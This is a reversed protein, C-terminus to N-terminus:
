RTLGRYTSPRTSRDQLKRMGLLTVVEDTARQRWLERAELTFELGERLYLEMTRGILQDLLGHWPMMTTSAATLNGCRPATMYYLGDIYIGATPKCDFRIYQQGSSGSVLKYRSPNGVRTTLTPVAGLQNDHTLPTGHTFNTTATLPSRPRVQNIEFAQFDAPLLFDQSVGDGLVSAVNTAIPSGLRMLLGNIEEVARNYVVRMLEPRYANGAQDRLLTRLEEFFTAITRLSASGPAPNGAITGTSLLAAIQNALAALEASTALGATSGGGGGGSNIAAGLSDTAPSTNDVDRVAAAVAALNGGAAATDLLLDLRGGDAWDDVLTGVDPRGTVIAGADCPRLQGNALINWCEDWNPLAPVETVFDHSQGDFNSTYTITLTGAATIYGAEIKLIANIGGGPSAAAWGGATLEGFLYNEGGLEEQRGIQIYGNDPDLTGTFAVATVEAWDKVGIYIGFFSERMQGPLSATSAAIAGPTGEQALVGAATAFTAADGGHAWNGLTAGGKTVTQGTGLNTLEVNGSIHVEGGTNTADLTLACDGDIYLVNGAQMGAISLAGSAKSLVASQGAGTFVIKAATVGTCDHFRYPVSDQSMTVTNMLHCRVFDAEGITMADLHSDVIIAEGTACTGIGSLGEVGEFYSKSVNQGGLALTFSRGSLVAGVLAAGLTVTTGPVVVFRNIGTAAALTVADAWPCPNDATGNVYPVTGSTGTAKVWISGSAYGVLSGSQQAQVYAQDLVLTGADAENFGFRIYVKGADAGSTGTHAALLTIDYLTETTGSITARVDWNTTSFNYASVTVADGVAAMSARLVVKSAARAVGCSFGYVWDIVDGVSALQHTTGDDALTNAFTGTQTGVASVSKIPTSANDSDVAYNLAAGTGSGIGSIQAALSDLTATSQSGAVHTVDVEPVGNVSPTAVATGLWKTVDAKTARNEISFMALVTGVVSTGNVTGTTIVVSYDAGAAYFADAATDIKVTHMGTVGDDDVSLTIGATSQTDDDNKYVSIAPTGALTIPTGDAQHTSFRFYCTQDELLNGLYKM